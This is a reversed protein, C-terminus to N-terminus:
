RKLKNLQNNLQNLQKDTLFCQIQSLTKESYKIKIIQEDSKTKNINELESKNLERQSFVIFNVPLGLHSYHALYIFQYNSYPKTIEKGFATKFKVVDKEFTIIQLWRPMCLIGASIMAVGSFIFIAKVSTTDEPPEVLDPTIVFFAMCFCLLFCFVVYIIAGYFLPPNAIIKLPKKNM